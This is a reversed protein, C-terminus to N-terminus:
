GLNSTTFPYPDAKKPKQSPWVIGEDNQAKDENQSHLDKHAPATM